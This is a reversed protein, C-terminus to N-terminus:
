RALFTLNKVAIILMIIITGTREVLVLCSSFGFQGLGHTFEM